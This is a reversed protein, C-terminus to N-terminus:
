RSFHALGSGYGTMEVFGNGNVTGTVSVSGEWYLPTLQVAMEQDPFTAEVTAQLGFDPVAVTWKIPYTAGTGASTWRELVQM